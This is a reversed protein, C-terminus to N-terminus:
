IDEKDVELLYKIAYRGKYLKKYTIYDSLDRSTMGLFARAEVGSSFTREKETVNDYVVVPKALGNSPKIYTSLDAKEFVANAFTARNEDFDGNSEIKGSEMLTTQSQRQIQSILNANVREYKSTNEKLLNIVRDVARNLSTSNTTNLMKFDTKDQIKKIEGIHERYVKMADNLTDTINSNKDKSEIAESIQFYYQIFIENIKDENLNLNSSVKKINGEFFILTQVIISIVSSPIREESNYKSLDIKPLSKRRKKDAM